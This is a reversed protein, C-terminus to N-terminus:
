GKSIENARSLQFQQWLTPTEDWAFNSIRTQLGTKSLKPRRQARVARPARVKSCVTPRSLHERAKRPASFAQLSQLAGLGRSSHVSLRGAAVEPSKMAELGRSSHVSVRAAAAQALAIGRKSASVTGGGVAGGQNLPHTALVRPTLTGPLPVSAPRAGLAPSCASRHESTPATNPPEETPPRPTLAPLPVTQSDRNCALADRSTRGEERAEAPAHAEPSKADVYKNLFNAWGDTNVIEQASSSNPVSAEWGVKAPQPIDGVEGGESDTDAETDDDTERSKAPESRSRPWKAVSPRRVIPEPPELSVALADSAEGLVLQLADYAEKPSALTVSRQCESAGDTQTKRVARLFHAAAKTAPDATVADSTSDTTVDTTASPTSGGAEANGQSARRALRQGLMVKHVVSRMNKSKDSASTAPQPTSGGSIRWWEKKSPLKGKARLEELRREVEAEIIKADSKFRTFLKLLDDRYTVRCDCLTKARVTATRKAVAPNKCIAAMEGFVSGDRLTAVTAEGIIIDVEGRSLIYMSDGYDGEKLIIVGPEFLRHNVHEALTDVFKSSCEKFLTVQNLSAKMANLEDVQRLAMRSAANMVTSPSTPSEPEDDNGKKQFAVSSRKVIQLTSARKKNRAAQVPTISEDLVDLDIEEVFDGTTQARLLSQRRDRAHQDRHAASFTPRLFNPEDFDEQRANAISANIVSKRATSLRRPGTEESM